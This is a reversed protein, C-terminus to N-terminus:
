MGPKVPKHTKREMYVNATPNEHPGYWRVRILNGRKEGRILRGYYIDYKDNDFYISSIVSSDSLDRPISDASSFNPKKDFIQVPLYKIIQV